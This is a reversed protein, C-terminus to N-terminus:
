KNWGESQMRLELVELRPTKTKAFTFLLGKQM